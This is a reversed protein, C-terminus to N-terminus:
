YMSSSALCALHLSLSNRKSSFSIRKNPAPAHPQARARLSVSWAPPDWSWGCPGQCCRAPDAHHRVPRRPAESPTFGKPPLLSELPLGTSPDWANPNLSCPTEKRCPLAPSSCDPGLPNASWHINPHSLVAHTKNHSSPPASKPHQQFPQKEKLGLQRDYM